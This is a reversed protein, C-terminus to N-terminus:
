LQVKKRSLFISIQFSYQGTFEMCIILDRKSLKLVNKVWKEFVNFGKTSNEFQLHQNNSYLVADITSKSVDMGIADNYKM